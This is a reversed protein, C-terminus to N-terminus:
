LKGCNQTMNIAIVSPNLLSLASRARSILTSANGHIRELHAHYRAPKSDRDTWDDQLSASGGLLLYVYPSLIFSTVTNYRM